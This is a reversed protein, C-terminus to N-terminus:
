DRRDSQGTPRNTPEEKATKSQQMEEEDDLELKVQQIHQSQAMVREELAEL